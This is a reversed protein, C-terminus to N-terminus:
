GDFCTSANDNTFIGSSEENICNVDLMKKNKPHYTVKFLMKPKKKNNPKFEKANINLSPEQIKARPSM